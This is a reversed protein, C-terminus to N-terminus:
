DEQGAFSKMLERKYGIFSKNTNFVVAGMLRDDTRGELILRGEDSDEEVVSVSSALDFLGVSKISTEYQDSWFTPVPVYPERDERNALLNAAASRAMEAANSWHEIWMTGEARPHPWAAIDGAAVVDDTGVAFCYADCLVAGQHLELGSGELWESNPIAGLAFLVLDADIRTGDALCVAEVRGDGAFSAVEAELHLVVGQTRHLRAAREGAEPGLAPMPHPAVDILTVQELGRKRLTAAVECGIFGAGVIAVRPGPEVADRLRVCDDLTRLTHFGELEPPDPWERARRGTAIVLGDFALTEAGLEVARESRDLGTAPEGLRWTVELEDAKLENKGPEMEGALIQKSLPPRNYPRHEEAGVITLEGEFGKERLEEAARLGALGAGAVVIREM